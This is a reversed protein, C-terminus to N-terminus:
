IFAVFPITVVSKVNIGELAYSNAIVSGVNVEGGFFKSLCFGIYTMIKVSLM